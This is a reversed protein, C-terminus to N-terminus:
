NWSQHTGAGNPGLGPIVGVEVLGDELLSRVTDVVLEQHETSLDALLGGFICAQVAATSVFDDHGSALIDDRLIDRANDESEVM